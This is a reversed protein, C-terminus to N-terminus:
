VRHEKVKQSLDELEDKDLEPLRELKDLFETLSSDYQQQRRENFYDVIVGTIVATTFIACLSCLVVALRGVLTVSTIDGLGVTTSVAWLFWLADGIRTISPEVVLVIISCLLYITLFGALAKSAGSRKIILWLLRLKHM